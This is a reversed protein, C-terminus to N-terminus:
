TANDTNVWAACTRMLYACTASQVADAALARTRYVYVAAVVAFLALWFLSTRVVTSKVTSTTM